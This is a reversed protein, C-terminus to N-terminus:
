AGIFERTRCLTQLYRSMRRLSEMRGGHSAYLQGQQTCTTMAFIVLYLALVGSIPRPEKSQDAGQMCLGLHTHRDSPIDNVTMNTNELRIDRTPAASVYLSRKDTEMRGRQSACLGLAIEDVGEGGSDLKVVEGECHQSRLSGNGGRAVARNRQFKEGLVLLSKGRLALTEDRWQQLLPAIRVALHEFLALALGLEEGNDVADGCDRVHVLWERKERLARASM